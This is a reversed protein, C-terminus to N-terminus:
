MPRPIKSWQETLVPSSVAPQVARQVRTKVLPPPVEPVYPPLREERQPESVVQQVPQAPPPVNPLAAAVTAPPEVLGATAVAVPQSTQQTPQTEPTSVIADLSIGYTGSAVVITLVIAASALTSWGLSRQQRRAQRAALRAQIHQWALPSPEQGNVQDRLAWRALSGIESDEAQHDDWGVGLFRKM